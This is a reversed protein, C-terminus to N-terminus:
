PKQDHSDRGNLREEFVEAFSALSEVALSRRRLAKLRDLDDIGDVSQIIWDPVDGFRMQLNDVISDRLGAMMGVQKGKEIGKRIGKEIGKEIGLEIGLQKGEELWKEAITGM